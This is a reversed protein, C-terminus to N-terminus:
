RHMEHPLTKKAVLDMQKSVVATGPSAANRVVFASDLPETLHARGCAAILRPTRM